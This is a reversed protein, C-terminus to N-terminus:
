GTTKVVRFRETAQWDEKGEFLIYACGLRHDRNLIFQIKFNYDRADFRQWGNPALVARKSWETDGWSKLIEGQGFLNLAVGKDLNDPNAYRTRYGLWYIEQEDELTARAYYIELRTIDLFISEVFALKWNRFEPAQNSFFMIKGKYNAFPQFNGGM